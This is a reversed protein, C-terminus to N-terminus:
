RSYVRKPMSSMMKYRRLTEIRYKLSNVIQLNAFMKLLFRVYFLIVKKRPYYRVTMVNHSVSLGIPRRYFYFILIFPKLWVSMIYPRILPSKHTSLDVDCKKDQWKWFLNGKGHQTHMESGRATDITFPM